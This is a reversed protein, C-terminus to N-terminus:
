EAVEVEVEVDTEETEEQAEKERAREELIESVHADLDETEDDFLRIEKYHRMGTGAPILHGIVVNEKLGRLQDTTGAIAANTLVRASAPNGSRPKSKQQKL